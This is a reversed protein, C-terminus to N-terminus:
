EQVVISACFLMMDVASGGAGVGAPLLGGRLRPGLLPPRAGPASVFPVRSSINRVRLGVLVSNSAEARLGMIFEGKAKLGAETAGAVSAVEGGVSGDFLPRFALRAPKPRTLPRPPAVVCGSTLICRAKPPCSVAGDEAAESAPSAGSNIGPFGTAGRGCLCDLCRRIDFDCAESM